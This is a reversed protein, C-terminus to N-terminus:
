EHRIVGINDFPYIRVWARGILDKRTLVGVGPDRSDMSHNRNDGMVFYKGEPIKDIGLDSLSFDQTKKTLFPEAVEEDNVYLKNDTYRITDGPLGIIRKILEDNDHHVVVIDFRKVGTFHHSVRDLLMIDNDELTDLMSDGDVRVTTLVFQKILLVVVIIIIYPLAGKIVRKM